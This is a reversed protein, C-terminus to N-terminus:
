GLPNASCIDPANIGFFTLVIIWVAKWWGSLKHDRFLDTIISFLVMLYAFFIVLLGLAIVVYPAWRTRTWRQFAEGGRLAMARATQLDFPGPARPAGASKDHNM